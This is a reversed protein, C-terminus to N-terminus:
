PLLVASHGGIVAFLPPLVNCCWLYAVACCFGCCRAGTGAIAFVKAAATVALLNVTAMENSYIGWLKICCYCCHTQLPHLPVVFRVLSWEIENQLLGVPNCLLSPFVCRLQLHLLRQALMAHNGNSESPQEQKPEQCFSCSDLSSGYAQCWLPMTAAPM